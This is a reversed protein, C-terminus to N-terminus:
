ARRRIEEMIADIGTGIDDEKVNSVNLKLLPEQPFGPLYHKDIPEAVISRKKLRAILQPVSVAGNLVIHTHIAPPQGPIYRFAGDGHAAHRTLHEHLLRSRSIFSARIKQKHREFMGSKMYVELAAQSLMSSDIDLLRRYRAFPEAMAEPIVAVGVRLGPFIIKSYSKLYIVRSEAGYAYIPDSKGNTELDALYDDEVVYVDYREALEAIKRKQEVSYSSGLPSHFRSMTYFFKIDETRFLRELEGLDIGEATRRIGIAPIRRTELQEAFLHYGPQEVLVKSKGNPFAISVLVSLAQQVGSTIFIRSEAAFVQHNALDKRIVPLLSPLGKSTGYVFLENRYTDIAKNICHRFDLYPFVDPDPASAAFDLTKAKEERTAERKVVYYGSKPVSYIMHRKELEHLARVVTGANCGYQGSLARVSPLKDGEKYPGGEIQLELENLLELYKHM